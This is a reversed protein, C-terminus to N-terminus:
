SVFGSYDGLANSAGIQQFSLVDSKAFPNSKVVSSVTGMGGNEQARLSNPAGASGGNLPVM